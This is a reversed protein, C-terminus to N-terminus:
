RQQAFINVNAQVFLDTFDQAQTFLYYVLSFTFVVPCNAFMPLSDTLDSEESNKLPNRYITVM